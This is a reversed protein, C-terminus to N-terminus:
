QGSTASRKDQTVFPRLHVKAVCSTDIGAFSGRKLFERGIEDTCPSTASHGAERIVLHMSNPLYSRAVEEGFIPPTAPDFHGSILLAPVRSPKIKTFDSPLVADPWERCAAIQQRVRSDGLYTGKTKERIEDETIRAVDESCTVSMLMGYRLMNRLGYNSALGARGFPALDGLFARHIALPVMSANDPRYTMVRLAEAFEGRGVEIRVPKGTAPHPITVTAHASDLRRLVAQFESRVNPFARACDPQQDCAELLRDLALQASWAHHLPNKFSFPNLARLVVHSVHEPHRQVYTLAARAGYSGGLLVIKDYGLAARLDDLDDMATPTAYMRLDAVQELKRRCERFLAPQFMPAMYGEPNADSGSLECNLTSPGGTGRQDLLIIPRDDRYWANWENAAYETATQGPGGYLMFVPEAGARAHRPPLIMFTLELVRGKKASRDEFVKLVGCQLVTDVGEARCRQLNLEQAKQQAAAPAQAHVTAAIASAVLTLSVIPGRLFRYSSTM